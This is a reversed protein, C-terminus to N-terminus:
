EDMLKGTLVDWTILKTVWKWHGEGEEEHEEKEEADKEPKLSAKGLCANVMTRRRNRAM